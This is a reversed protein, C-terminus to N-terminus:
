GKKELENRLDRIIQAATKGRAEPVLDEPKIVFNLGLEKRLRKTEEDM